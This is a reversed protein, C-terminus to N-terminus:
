RLAYEWYYEAEAETPPVAESRPPELVATRESFSMETFGKPIDITKAYESPQLINRQMIFDRAAEAPFIAPTIIAKTIPSAEQWGGLIFDLATGTGEIIDTGGKRFDETWDEVEWTGFAKPIFSFYNQIYKIPNPLIGGDGNDDSDGKGDDDRGLNLSKLWESFIKGLDPVEPLNMNWPPQFEPIDLEPKEIGLFSGGGGGDGNKVLDRAAAPKSFLLFAGIGLGGILLLDKSKM